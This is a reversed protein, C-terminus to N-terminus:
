SKKAENKHYLDIAAQLIDVACKRCLDKHGYYAEKQSSLAVYCDETAYFLHDSYVKIDDRSGVKQCRDCSIIQRTAM